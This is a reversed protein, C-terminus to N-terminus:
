LISRHYYKKMYKKGDDSMWYHLHEDGCLMTKVKTGDDLTVIKWIGRRAPVASVTIFSSVFLAALFLKKGIM